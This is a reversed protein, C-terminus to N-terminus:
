SIFHHPTHPLGQNDSKFGQIGSVFSGAPCRALPGNMDATGSFGDWSAADPVGDFSKRVGTTAGAATVCTYRIESIFHHPTHPLGQNDSKFGQIGSVFSGAPCRALPGNMDATGSFGDWSAADPVGDFSKRVGTTAGAATVCTYGLGSIFHHPTHPLGQ